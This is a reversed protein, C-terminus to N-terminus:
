YDNLIFNVVKAPLITSHVDVVFDAIVIKGDRKFQAWIKYKGTKPFAAHFAIDPGGRSGPSTPFLQEPHCHLFRQTDQSIIAAHGMAGMYPQLDTVPQGHDALRVLLMAHTGATLTRPQTILEATMEPHDVIPKVSAAALTLQPIEDVARAGGVTLPFRFIQDRQSPPFYEAFILYRGPHPFHYDIQLSGDPQPVPHVHDFSSLNASVITVHMPHEHVVPLDRLLKDSQTPIFILRMQM